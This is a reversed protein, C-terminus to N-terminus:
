APLTEYLVFLTRDIRDERVRHVLCAHHIITEPGDAVYVIGHARCLLCEWTGRRNIGAFAIRSNEPM